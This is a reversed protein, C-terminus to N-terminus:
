IFYFIKLVKNYLSLQNNDNKNDYLINTGRLNKSNYNNINKDFYNFINLYNSPCNKNEFHENSQKILYGRLNNIKNVNQTKYDTKVLNKKNDLQKRCFLNFYVPDNELKYQTKETEFLSQNLKNLNLFKDICRKYLLKNNIKKNSFLKVLKKNDIDKNALSKYIPFLLFLILFLKIM